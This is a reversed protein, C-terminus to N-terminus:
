FSHAIVKFLNSMGFHVGDLASTHVTLHVLTIVLIHFHLLRVGPSRLLLLLISFHLKDETVLPIKCSIIDPTENVKLALSISHDRPVVLM